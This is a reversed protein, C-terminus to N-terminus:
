GAVARPRSKEAEADREWAEFFAPALRRLYRRNARYEAIASQVRDCSRSQRTSMTM